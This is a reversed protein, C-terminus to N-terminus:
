RGTAPAAGHRRLEGLAARLQGVEAATAAASARLTDREELLAYIMQDKVTLLKHLVEVDADPTAASAERAERAFDEASVKM